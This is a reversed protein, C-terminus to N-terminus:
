TKLKKFVRVPTGSFSYRERLLREIHRLYTDKLGDPRNTFVVFRPPETGVQTIYHLRVKKGRYSPPPITRLLENLEKTSIRKKREAIVGDILPFVKTIRKKEMGSTTVVPAHDFFWLKWSIENLLRKYTEEPDKVLDWKNLLFVAGKDYGMVMGAIKQDEAVIGTSADLVILSVDSREISRAARIMAFREVPYARAKRRIGATDILIYRKKYYTCLSDVADRTTGPTPSVIMRQKGLLSNVLTSKGVNPRGIVSVKPYAAAEPGAHPLFSVAREMLEDFNYGTKGSVPMLDEAGLTYFDYIRNEKTPGDIKNVVSIVKKGSARLTESLEIDAPTLSASGDMLHMILDAEEIAFLAQEKIQRQIDPEAEAYFGGTDVADFAHGEWQAESYNRDRTVGPVDEVIAQARGVVRNFLTSKGVNPRGVIVLVPRPM